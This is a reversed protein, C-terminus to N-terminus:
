VPGGAKRRIHGRVKVTGGTKLGGAHPPMMGPPPGGMMPPRPPMGPPGGPPMGPPGGPGPPPPMPPKQAAMQAGIQMGQQMAQKKAAGDDGTKIIVNVTKPGGKVSGGSARAVPKGGCAYGNSKLMSTAKASHQAKTPSKHVM